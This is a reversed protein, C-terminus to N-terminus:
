GAMMSPSSAISNFSGGALSALPFHRRTLRKRRHTRRLLGELLEFSHGEWLSGRSGCREFRVGMLQLAHMHVGTHTRARTQTDRKM